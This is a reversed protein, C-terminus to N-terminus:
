SKLKPIRKNFKIYYFLIIGFIPLLWKLWYSAKEFIMKKPGFHYTDNFKKYTGEYIGSVVAIEKKNFGAEGYYKKILDSNNPLDNLEVPISVGYDADLLWSQGNFSVSNVVHGRDFAIIKSSIGNKYLITSMLMSTDGCIGIGREMSKQYDRIHYRKYEPHIYGMAWLIYNEWIPIQLHYKNGEINEWHVHAIGDSIVDVMRRSYGLDDENKLRKIQNRFQDLSLKLDDKFVNHSEDSLGGARMSQTLGYLNVILLFVSIFFIIKTTFQKNM